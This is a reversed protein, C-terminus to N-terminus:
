LRSSSRVVDERFSEMFDKYSLSSHPFVIKRFTPLLKGTSVTYCGLLESYHAVGTLIKDSQQQRIWVQHQRTYCCVTQVEYSHLSELLLNMWENM